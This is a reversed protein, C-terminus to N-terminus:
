ISIVMYCVRQLVQQLSLISIAMCIRRNVMVYVRRAKTREGQRGNHMDPQLQVAEMDAEETKQFGNILWVEGVHM